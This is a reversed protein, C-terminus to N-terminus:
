VTYTKERKLLSHNLKMPIAKYKRRLETKKRSLIKKLMQNKRVEKSKQLLACDKLKMLSACTNLKKKAPRRLQRRKM